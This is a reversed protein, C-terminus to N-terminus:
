ANFCKLNVFNSLYWNGKPRGKFFKFIKMCIIENLLHMLCELQVPLRMTANTYSQNLKRGMRKIDLSSKSTQVWVRHTQPFLFCFSIYIIYSLSWYSSYCNALKTRIRWHMCTDSSVVKSFLLTQYIWTKPVFGGGNRPSHKRKHLWMRNFKM